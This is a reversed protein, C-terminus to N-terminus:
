APHLVTHCRYADIFHGPYVLCYAATPVRSVADITGDATRDRAGAEGGSLIVLKNQSSPTELRKVIEFYAGRDVSIEMGM